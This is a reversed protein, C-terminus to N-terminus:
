EREFESALKELLAPAADPFLLSLVPRSARSLAGCTERVRRAAGYIDCTLQKAADCADVYSPLSSTFVEGGLLTAMELAFTEAVGEELVITSGSIPDLLHVTEHALEYVATPWYGAANFSLDAFAGDLGPTNIIRPGADSFTPQYVAKMPDKSGLRVEAWQLLQQQVAWMMVPSHEPREPPFTLM